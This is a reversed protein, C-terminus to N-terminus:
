LLLNSGNLIQLHTESSAFFELISLDLLDRGLSRHKLLEFGNLPSDLGPISRSCGQSCSTNCLKMTAISSFFFITVRGIQRGVVFRYAAMKHLEIPNKAVTQRQM